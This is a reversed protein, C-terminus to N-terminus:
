IVAKLVLKAFCSKHATENIKNFDYSQFGKM